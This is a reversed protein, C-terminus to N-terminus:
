DVCRNFSHARHLCLEISRSMKKRLDSVEDFEEDAKPTSLKGVLVDKFGYKKAKALFKESWIPWEDVKGFFSIVRITNLDTM